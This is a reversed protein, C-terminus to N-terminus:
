YGGYITEDKGVVGEYRGIMRAVTPDNSATFPKSMRRFGMKRYENDLISFIAKCEAKKFAGNTYVNAEHMVYAHNEENSSDLTEAVTYNDAEVITVCPLESPALIEESSMNVTPFEKKVAKSIRDFVQNEIDIM